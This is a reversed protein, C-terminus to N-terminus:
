RPAPRIVRRGDGGPKDLKVEQRKTEILFAGNDQIYTNHARHRYMSLGVVGTKGMYIPSPPHIREPNEVTNLDDLYKPPGFDDEVRDMIRAILAFAEAATDVRGAVEFALLMIHLRTKKQLQEM